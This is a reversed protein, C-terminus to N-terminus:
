SRSRRSSCRRSIRHPASACWAGEVDAVNFVTYYRLFAVREKKADPAPQDPQAETKELVNFYIVPLGKAGKRISGGLDKAQKFTLFFPANEGSALHLLFANIGSYPRGTAYNRPLGYQANWPKRWPIVGGELAALIRDTVLQYVDPRRSEQAAQTAQKKM